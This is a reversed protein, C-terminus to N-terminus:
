HTLQLLKRATHQSGTVILFYTGAPLEALALDYVYQPANGLHQHLVMKGALDAVQLSLEEGTPNNLSVRYWGLSPNPYVNLGFPDPTVKETSAFESNAYNILQISIKYHPETHGNGDYVCNACTIGNDCDPNWPSCENFFPELVYDLSVAQGPTVFNTIDYDTPSVQEGPCWGARAFQWTGGQPSCPNTNCDDKWLFNAFVTQADVVLDHTKPSFEAANDTNGQGHGTQVIRVVTKESNSPIVVSREELDLKKFITDGYIMRYDQWLNDIKIATYDPSGTVFEFDITIEWGNQWTEIHSFLTVDGELLDRYETVDLTWDCWDNGYPTVYRGIEYKVGDKEVQIHAYRDWPDCGGAPCSLNFHMLIQSYTSNDAPFTFVDSITSGGTHLAEDFTNVTVQAPSLGWGAALLLLLVIRRM